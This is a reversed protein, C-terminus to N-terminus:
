AVHSGYMNWRYTFHALVTLTHSNFLVTDSLVLPTCDFGSTARNELLILLLFSVFIIGKLKQHFTQGNSFM